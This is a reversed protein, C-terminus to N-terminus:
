LREKFKPLFLDKESLIPDDFPYRYNISDYRYGAAYGPMYKSTLNYIITTNDEMICYCNALGKPVYLINSKKENIEFVDYQGYTDSNERLDLVINTFAGSAAFLTKAQAYPERQFHFGRITGRKTNKSILTENFDCQLGLSEYDDRSFIKVVGGREDYFLDPILEVVGEIKSRNLQYIM